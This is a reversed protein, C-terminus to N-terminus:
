KEESVQPPDDKPFLTQRLNFLYSGTALLGAVVGLIVKLSYEMMSDPAFFIWWAAVLVGLLFARLFIWRRVTSLRATQQETDANM